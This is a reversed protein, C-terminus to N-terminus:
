SAVRDVTHGRPISAILKRTYDREPHRYVRDAPGIEEIQGQNMVMIRDSMFKVVSLDHSIFIYTLGFEEQLEKLLNLVQAQVSVDLASVSEDCIVFKPELALARAICIRQKQGGSFEHPYRNVASADLDVRDLLYRVRDLREKKSAGFNHIQMPELIAAGVSMRPNLANGPDQFITQMDRRFFRLAKPQLALIDRDEFRIKGALPDILRMLTRALTSKGCGSEGVLGLTEGPFVQFSVDNVAMTYRRARGFLGRQPFGVKLHEVDLLPPQRQLYALRRAVELDTIPTNSPKPDDIAGPEDADIPAAFTSNLKVTGTDARDAPADLDFNDLNFRDDDTDLPQSAIASLREIAAQDSDPQDASPLDSSPSETEASIPDIPEEAESDEAESDEAESDEAESDEVESNTVDSKKVELGPDVTNSDDETEGNIQVNVQVDIAAPTNSVAPDDIAASNNSAEPDNGEELISRIRALDSRGRDSATLSAGLGSGISAISEGFAEGLVSADPMREVIESEGAANTVVEMFDAVTPLCRMRRDLQPRCAILGKTYPHQPASFIRDVTGVEVLEGRYMVAVVDAVEAIVGLDHSVFMMSMQHRDRLERLLKLITAQVTVDLATTPEDAILLTPNSSIAMAITVRQLQGGSLQHPYRDLWDQKIQAVRKLIDRKSTTGDQAELEHSVQDRLTAEDAVLKVEQLREIAQQQAEAVTVTQHQRIAEVIQYGITYVPNLASMPEQFIVAMEGGRYRRLQKEPLALLNIPNATANTKLWIEGSTVRGPSPILGMVAQSTVSKGSGSEGVIGITQGRELQFTLGSVAKVLESETPFEVSLNRIDLVSDRFRDSM